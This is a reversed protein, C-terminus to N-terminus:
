KKNSIELIFERLKDYRSDTYSNCDKTDENHVRDIEKYIEDNLKNIQTQLENYNDENILALEKTEKKNKFTQVIGIISAIVFAIGFITLVGYVYYLIEM